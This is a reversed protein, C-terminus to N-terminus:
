FVLLNQLLVTGQEFHTKRQNKAATTGQAPAYQACVVYQTGQLRFRLGFWRDSEPAVAMVSGDQQWRAMLFRSLVIAVRGFVFVTYEEMGVITPFREGGFIWDPSHVDFLLMIHAYGQRMRLVIHALTNRCRICM